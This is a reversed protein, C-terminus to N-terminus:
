SKSTNETMTLGVEHSYRFIKGQQECEWLGNPVARLTMQYTGDNKPKGLWKSWSAPVGVTNLDLLEDRQDESLTTLPEGNLLALRRAPTTQVLLLNLNRDGDRTLRAAAGETDPWPTAESKSIQHAAFYRGFEDASFRDFRETIAAPEDAWPEHQYVREIWGRYAGPFEIASCPVLLQETRWLVRECGYVVAHLGYTSGQPLLVTCHPEAFGEPRRDRLHRHLRGLRQFLLDVPCLQSILWDFDLDLSQEIVQTAVLIRGQDRTANKGYHQQVHEEHRQRDAFLYRAHFLDVPLDTMARLKRALDQANAVMNCVIGVLAGRRAAERIRECLAQDPLLDDTICPEILVKRPTPMEEQPLRSTQFQGASSVWTILPYPTKEAAEREELQEGWAGVLTSKQALPLTASLLMASGGARQQGQLVQTLLGYMYADYAHVEDIILVSKRLGFARVFQHRVPLVSLLVQDVTCVGIQGLFARKRSAGLWQVCQVSADRENEDTQVTPRLAASHLAQFNPNYRDKGHALVVNAGGTFFRSAVEELRQLMANATAQTPLAFVISEAVGAALLKSAYALALETKGSGTPAEIITLGSQLPLTDVLTQLQRPTLEPFLQWIGGSGVINGCLGSEGPATRAHERASWWYDVLPYVKTEYSFRQDNSGLWDCVACFGALLDPCPPPLVELHLGVPHLFLAQLARLWELRARRDREIIANDAFPAVVEANDPLSGHHGTVAALWPKWCYRSEDSLGLGVVGNIRSRM